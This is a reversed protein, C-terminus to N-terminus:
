ETDDLALRVRRARRTAAVDAAKTLGPDADVDEEALRIQERLQSAGDQFMTQAVCCMIQFGRARWYRWDDINLILTGTALGADMIRQGLEEVVAVVDPHRIDGHLGMSASIDTPGLSVFDLHPVAVIEDLKEAAELSEIMVGVVSNENSTAVRDAMSGGSGMGWANWRDGALGRRGVPPFKVADVVRQVDQGSECQPLIIGQSGGVLYKQMLGPELHQGYGVRTITPLGRREAALYLRECDSPSPTGHEAEVWLFDYDLMGLIEVHSTDGWMNTLVGSVAHGNRIKTKLASSALSHDLPGLARDEVITEGFARTSAGCADSTYARSSLCRASLRRVFFAM